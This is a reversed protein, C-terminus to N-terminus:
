MNKSEKDSILQGYTQPKNRTKQQTGNIQTDTKPTKM